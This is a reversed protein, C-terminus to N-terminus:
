RLQTNIWNGLAKTEELNITHEIPYSHWETSAGLVSSLQKKAAEGMFYPVIQDRIGHAMFIQHTKLPSPIQFPALNPLYCSLGFAGSLTHPYTLASLLGLVGGQSFGGVIIHEALVGQSIEHQILGHIARISDQMGVVDGELIKAASDWSKIDYWAPMTMYGNATIARNPAQPFIIKVGHSQSLALYPILDIFDQNTAGLGHLWIISYKPIQDEAKPGSYHVLTELLM